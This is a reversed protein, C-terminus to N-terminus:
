HVDSVADLPFHMAQLDLGFVAMLGVGFILLEGKILIDRGRPHVERCM